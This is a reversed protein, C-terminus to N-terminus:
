QDENKGKRNIARVSRAKAIFRFLFYETRLKRYPGRVQKTLPIYLYLVLSLNLVVNFIIIVSPSILTCLLLHATTWVLCVLAVVAAVIIFRTNALVRAIFFGRIKPRELEWYYHIAVCIQVKFELLLSSIVTNYLMEVTTYDYSCGSYPWSFNLAIKTAM